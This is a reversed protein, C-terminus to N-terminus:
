DCVEYPYLALVGSQATAEHLGKFYKYESGLANKVVSLKIDELQKEFLERFFDKTGSVDQVRYDTLGALAAATRIADDIGGLEDVLGLTLAQQGTWVRGQGIKDVEEKTMGRGTACRSLFTDYTHEVFSQLLVKEDDRMPRSPDMFDGYRNTKVYDLTLDLKDFLGAANMFLGFVGISGTLTNPEAVIRDAACSIYYGGSAAYSGMSVVVPKEKKLESVEKWIQDSIFASGGRSNVRFVVAKVNEDKRLKRLQGAMKGTITPERSLLLSSPADPTIEGEAYLVAIRDGKGDEKMRISKMKDLSATNLKDGTQGALERVYDEAEAQYKLQDVMGAEVYREAPAIFMGEDAFRNLNETTLGRSAAIDATINGWVSQQYATIQERNEPSLKDLMYPEVAGKYTGVKFVLWEIGLKGAFKKFFMTGGSLGLLTVSGQPNLFVHDAVSCLHYANQSYYDAYAVIFKGSEKFDLLARRIPDIAATGAAFATGAELYIGCINTNERASHIAKLIDKASLPKITNGMLVDFPSDETNDNIASNLSLKFVTNPAPSYAPRSGM